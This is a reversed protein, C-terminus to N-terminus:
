LAALKKLLFFGFNQNPVPGTAGSLYRIRPDLSKLEGTPLDMSKINQVRITSQSDELTCIKIYIPEYNM